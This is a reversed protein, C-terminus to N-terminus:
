RKLFYIALVAIIIEPAIAALAGIFGTINGIAFLTYAILSFCLIVVLLAISVAKLIKVFM